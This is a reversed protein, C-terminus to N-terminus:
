LTTDLFNCPRIVALIRNITYPRMGTPDKKPPKRPSVIPTRVVSKSPPMPVSNENRHTNKEGNRESRLSGAGISYTSKQHM